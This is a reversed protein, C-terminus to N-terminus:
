PWPRNVIKPDIRGLTGGEPSNCHLGEVFGRSDMEPPCPWEGWEFDGTEITVWPEGFPNDHLEPPGLADTTFMWHEMTSGPAGRMWKEPPPGQWYDIAMATGALAALALLGAMVTIWKKM